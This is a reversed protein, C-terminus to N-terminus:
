DGRRATTASAVDKIQRIAQLESTEPCLHGHGFVTTVNRSLIELRQANGKLAHVNVGTQGPWGQSLKTAQQKAHVDQVHVSRAGRQKTAQGRGGQALLTGLDDVGDMTKGGCVICRWFPLSQQRQLAGQGPDRIRPKANGVRLSLRQQRGNHGARDFLAHVDDPIPNLYFSERSWMLRTLLDALQQVQWWVCKQNRRDHAQVTWAIEGGQQCREAAYGIRQGLSM